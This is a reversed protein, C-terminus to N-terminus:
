EAEDREVIEWSDYKSAPGPGGFMQVVKTQADGNQFSVEANAPIFVAMGAAVEHSTGDITMTGGGSLFYLYEETPDRHQPVGAGPEITLTGIYGEVGRALLTATAKGAVQRQEANAEVVVSPEVVPDDAVAGVKTGLFDRDHLLAGAPIDHEAVRGIVNGRDASRIMDPTLYKKGVEVTRVHEDTLEKGKDIRESAVLVEEVVPPLEETTTATTEKIQAGDVDVPECGLAVLSALSAAFIIYARM